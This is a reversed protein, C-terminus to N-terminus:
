PVKGASLMNAFLRYAGPVGAPLQRFWSYATFIYVGKGYRLYLEGGLLPQEGPDHSSFVSKYHPDWETAFYLGREQVWGEFDKETIQNPTHLLPLKPDPFAVPADEDTIRDRTLRMPYPGIHDLQDTSGNPGDIFNYQVVVTGGDRAYDFLRQYNARLDARTNFARVGTVIADFRSLEGRALDEASLLTVDCGIQRLADPIEDGAGMVYGIKKALTRIDARVLASQAPPFLMQAPFHPYLIPKTVSSVNRDGVTAIARLEGRADSAPPSLEFSVTTQEGAAALEFHNSAPEIKWGDQAELHVEGAAHPENARVTVEVSRPRADAFVLSHEALDIGVPPVIALPRTEQGYIHDVYIYHIPRLLEIEIGAVRLRFHADLVPPNEPLGIMRGDPISYLWGDKPMELWYPQSYPQQEPIRFSVQYQMPKNFPLVSPALDVTPAGAIGSLTVGTLAVQAPSRVLASFNVKLSGGPSVAYRDATADLSIAACLAMTEDLDVLKRHALIPDKMGAIMPRAQALLPLLLEPHLPSLTDRAQDLISELEPYAKWSNGIGDLIDKTAKDGALNAYTSYIAGKTQPTGQGQSRHFSRSIGRIEGYSYGLDPSYEGVDVEVDGNAPPAARGGRGGGPPSSRGM